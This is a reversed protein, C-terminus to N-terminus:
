ALFVMVGLFLLTWAVLRIEVHHGTSTDIVRVWPTSSATVTPMGAWTKSTYPVENMQAWVEFVSGNQYFDVAMFTPVRGFTHNCLTAQYGLTGNQQDKGNTFTAKGSQPIDISKNSLSPLASSLFHNMLYFSGAAAKGKPRDVTCTFANANTTDFPTEFVYSFEPMYWTNTYNGNIVVNDTFTVVRKGMAAMQLLTPWTTNPPQYYSLNALGAQQYLAEFDSPDFADFNEWFITVVEYPNNDLFTRIKKLNDVATGGDQIFCSTHCLEITHKDPPNLPHHADILFGRIGDQLQSAIDTYQNAAINKGFAYSNHTAVNCVADYKRNCLDPHGNCSQALTATIPALLLTAFSLTSHVSMQANM